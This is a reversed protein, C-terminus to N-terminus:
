KERPEKKTAKRVRQVSHKYGDKENKNINGFFRWLNKFWFSMFYAFTEDENHLDTNIGKSAFIYTILHVCEHLLCYFDNSDQVWVVFGGNDPLVGCYGVGGLKYDIKLGDIFNQAEERTGYFAIVDVLFVDDGFTKKKM